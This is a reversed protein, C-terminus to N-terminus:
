GAEQLRNVTEALCEWEDYLEALETKLRAAEESASFLLEHDSMNEPESIAAALETQREELTLIRKEVQRHRRVVEKRERYSLASTTSDPKPAAPEAPKKGEEGAREDDARPPSAEKGAAPKTATKGAPGAPSPAGQGDGDGSKIWDLRGKKWQYYEWDGPYHTLRGDIVEIVETGIANILHRDHSIFVVSGEFQRLAETLVDRSAMDLHNTPEDLLLFGAPDLLMRALALRAKEGGSLVGVKKSMDDESFLFAGLYSRVQTMKDVRAAVEEMTELVTCDAELVELQHQAFYERRVNHGLEIVGADAPVVGALLKLLTSKGAGNPGVLAIKQGREV